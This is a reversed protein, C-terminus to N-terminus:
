MNGIATSITLLYKCQIKIMWSDNWCTTVDKRQRNVNFNFLGQHPPIPQAQKISIIKLTYLYVSCLGSFDKIRNM